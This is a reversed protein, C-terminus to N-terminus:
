QQDLGSSDVCEVEDVNLRLRHRYIVAVGSVRVFSDPALRAALTQDSNWIRGEMVASRDSLKLALFPIGAGTTGQRIARLFFIESIAAGAKLDALYQSRSM